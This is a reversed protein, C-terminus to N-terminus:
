WIATCPRLSSPRAGSSYAPKEIVSSRMSAKRGPKPGASAFGAGATTDDGAARGVTAGAVDADDAEAGAALSLAAGCAAIALAGALAGTDADGARGAPMLGARAASSAARAPVFDGDDRVGGAAAGAM